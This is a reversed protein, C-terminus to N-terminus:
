YTDVDASEQAEALDEMGIASELIGKFERVAGLGPVAKAVSDLIKNALNLIKDFWRIPFHWWKKKKPKVFSPRVERQVEVFASFLRDFMMMKLELQIGTLGEADLAQQDWQNTNERVTRLTERVEEDWVRRVQYIFERDRFIPSFLREANDVIYQLLEELAIMFGRLDRVPEGIMSERYDTAM